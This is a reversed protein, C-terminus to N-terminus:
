GQLFLVISVQVRLQRGLHLQDLCLLLLQDFSLVLKVLHLQAQEDFKFLDLDQLVEIIPSM